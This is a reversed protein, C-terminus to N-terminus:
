ATGAPSRTTTVDLRVNQLCSVHLADIVVQDAQEVLCIQGRGLGTGSGTRYPLREARLGRSCLGDRLIMAPRVGRTSGATTKPHRGVPTPFRRGRAQSIM